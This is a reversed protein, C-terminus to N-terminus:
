TREGFLASGIRVITAGEEIAIEFDNSMGMSLETFSKLQPQREQIDDRLERLRRFQPRTREPDEELSAMGMMGSLILNPCTRAIELVLSETNAPEVGQKQAEGSINVEMLIKITRTNEAARKSLERATDISDISQISEIFGAISKVKKSQLHGIFHWRIDAPLADKKALLEQVRSEAFDRLGLDYFSRIAAVSQMKSVPM